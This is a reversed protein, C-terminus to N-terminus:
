VPVSAPLRSVLTRRETGRDESMGGNGRPELTKLEGDVAQALLSFVLNPKFGLQSSRQEQYDRSPKGLGGGVGRRLTRTFVAGM